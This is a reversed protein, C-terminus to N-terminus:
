IDFMLSLTNKIILCSVILFGFAVLQNLFGKKTQTLIPNLITTILGAVSLVFFKPYKIVNEWFNEM